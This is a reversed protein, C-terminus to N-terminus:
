YVSFFVNLSNLEGIFRGILVPSVTRYFDMLLNPRTSILAELCKAASKGRCITMMLTSKKMKKTMAKKQRWKVM